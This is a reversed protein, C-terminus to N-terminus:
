LVVVVYCAYLKVYSYRNKAGITIYCKSPLDAKDANDGGVTSCIAVAVNWISLLVLQVAVFTSFLRIAIIILAAAFSLSM